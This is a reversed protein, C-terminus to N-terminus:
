EKKTINCIKFKTMKNTKNNFDREKHTKLLSYFGVFFSVKTVFCVLHCFKFNKIYCLLIVQGVLVGDANFIPVRRAPPFLSQDEDPM